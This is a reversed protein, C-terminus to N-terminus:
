TNANLLEDENMIMGAKPTTTSMENIADQLIGQLIATAQAKAQELDESALERGVLLWNSSALWQNEPYDIHRHVSLRFTGFKIESSRVVADEGYGRKKDKWKNM